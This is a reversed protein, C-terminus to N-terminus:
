VLDEIKLDPLREQIKSLVGDKKFFITNKIISSTNMTIKGRSILISGKSVDAGTEELIIQAIVSKDDEPNKLNKFKELYTSLNFM